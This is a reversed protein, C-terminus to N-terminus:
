LEDSPVRTWQGMSDREFMSGVPSEILVVISPDYNAITNIDYFAFNGPNEAYAESEDGAFFRWGSDVDEGAERYCYGAPAGDVTIRDSAICAGYGVAIPKLEDPALHFKKAFM